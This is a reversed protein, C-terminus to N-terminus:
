RGHLEVLRARDAATLPLFGTADPEATLPQCPGCMLTHPEANHDLGLAHGLEHAVVHKTVMPDTRYPGRVRRIVVLYRPPSVRPLPWTFSLIDQRSLLLVVDADLDVLAAPPPPEADGAPLRTARQAVQRAYNEVAREVPSATAVRPEAFRTAVGLETLRDNWFAIAERAPTLRDDAATPVLVLISSSGPRLSPPEGAAPAEAGGALAALVLIAAVRRPASCWSWRGATQVDRGRDTVPRAAASSLSGAVARAAGRVSAARSVRTGAAGGDGRISAARSVRTGAAGGDGRGTAGGGRRGIM